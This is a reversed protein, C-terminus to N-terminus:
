PTGVHADAINASISASKQHTVDHHLSSAQFGMKRRPDLSLTGALVACCFPDGKRSADYSSAFTSWRKKQWEDGCYM